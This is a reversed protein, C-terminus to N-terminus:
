PGKVSGTLSSGKKPSYTRFFLLIIGFTLLIFVVASMKSLFALASALGLFFGRKLTPSQLWRVFLYLSVFFTCAIATDATALGSHALVPPLSSFLAAAVIAAGDLYLIRTWIWVFLASVVFFPLIDARALALNRTYPDNTHLIENGANFPRALHTGQWSIWGPYSGADVDWDESGRMNSALKSM